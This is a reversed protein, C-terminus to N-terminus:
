AFIHMIKDILGSIGGADQVAKVGEVILWGKVVLTAIAGIVGIIFVIVCIAILLKFIRDFEM